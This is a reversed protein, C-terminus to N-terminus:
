YVSPCELRKGSKRKKTGRGGVYLSGSGEDDQFQPHKCTRVYFCILRNHRLLFVANLINLHTMLATRRSADFGVLPFAMRRKPDSRLAIRHM